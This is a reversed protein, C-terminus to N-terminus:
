TRKGSIPYTVTHVSRLLFQQTIATIDLDLVASNPSLM